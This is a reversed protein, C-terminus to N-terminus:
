EGAWAELPYDLRTRWRSRALNLVIGLLWGRFREPSRLRALSLFAHLFAEQVIDEAEHARRRLLRGALRLAEQRHRDVLEGFAPKDGALVRHVLRDDTEM